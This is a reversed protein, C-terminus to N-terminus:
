MGRKSHEEPRPRGSPHMSGEKPFVDGKTKGTAMGLEETAAPEDKADICFLVGYKPDNGQPRVLSM